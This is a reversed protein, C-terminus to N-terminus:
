LRFLTLFTAVDSTSRAEILPRLETDRLYIKWIKSGRPSPVQPDWHHLLHRNFGARGLTQAIPGDGFIRSVAGHSIQTYDIKPDAWESRHEIVIRLIGVLRAVVVFGLGWAVALAM